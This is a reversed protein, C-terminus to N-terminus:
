SFRGKFITKAESLLCLEKDTIESERNAKALAVIEALTWISSEEAGAEVLITKVAQDEAFLITHGLTKSNAIVFNLLV